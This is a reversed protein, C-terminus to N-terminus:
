KAPDTGIFGEDDYYHYFVANGDEGLEDIAIVTEDQTEVFEWLGGDLAKQLAEEKTEAEVRCV